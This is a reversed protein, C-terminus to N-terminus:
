NDFVGAATAVGGGWRATPTLKPFNSARAWGTLMLNEVKKSGNL